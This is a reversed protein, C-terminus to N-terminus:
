KLFNIQLPIFIEMKEITGFNEETIETFPINVGFQEELAVTLDIVTISDLMRSKILSQDPQVSVFLTEKLYNQIFSRFDGM